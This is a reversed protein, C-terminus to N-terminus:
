GIGVCISTGGTRRPVRELALGHRRVLDLVIALGLGEGDAAVRDRELRVARLRANAFEADSLGRGTDHVEIRLRGDIVRSGILVKGSDTYKIANSVLNAVIRMLALPDIEAEGSGRVFRLDLGKARADDVFMEHVSALLDQVGPAATGDDADTQETEGLVGRHEDTLAGQLENALLGELYGFTETIRAADADSADQSRALSTVQHRLAHLPQRLDHITDAIRASRTQALETVLAYRQEIEGLRTTLALNRTADSLSKRLAVQRSRRMQAFQDVIALGMMVADFVMAVRMSDFELDRTWEVGILHRLNMIASSIAAGLWALLYFRVGMFNYRAVLLGAGICILIVLLAAPILAQKVQQPDFVLVSLAMLLSGLTVAVLFRDLARNRVNLQLFVRAYNAAFVMFAGGTAVSAQSNFLPADPWLYQFAVGDAHLLYLFTAGTYAIFAPFVPKHVVVWAIGAALMCVAMMGYYIFNKSMRAVTKEVFSVPTELSFSLQSSGESWYAVYIAARQGPELLLPAVMEPYAIPRASFPSDRQLSLVHEFGTPGGGVWVEMGQKFNEHFHLRWERQAETANVLEFRLWIRSKIYGFNPEAQALPAFLGPRAAVDALELSWDPDLLVGIHPAIAEMELPGDAIMPQAVLGAAGQASLGASSVSSDGFIPSNAGLNGPIPGGAMAVSCNAIALLVFIRLLFM